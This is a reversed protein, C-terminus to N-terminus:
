DTIVDIHMPYINQSKRPAMWKQIGTHLFRGSIGTIGLIQFKTQFGQFRVYLRQFGDQFEQLEVHFGYFRAEGKFDTKFDRFDPRLDM